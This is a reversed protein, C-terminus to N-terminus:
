FDMLQTTMSWETLSSTFTLNSSTEWLQLASLRIGVTNPNHGYKSIKFFFYTLLSVEYDNPGSCTECSYYCPVCTDHRNAQGM